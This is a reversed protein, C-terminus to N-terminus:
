HRGIGDSNFIERGGQSLWFHSRNGNSQFIYDNHFPTGYKQSIQQALANKDIKIWCDNRIKGKQLAWNYCDLCKNMDTLGGKVCAALFCCGWNRINQNPFHRQKPIGPVGTEGTPIIPQPIPIPVPIDLSRPGPVHPPVDIYRSGNSDMYCVFRKNGSGGTYRLWIRGENLILLDGSNIINGTDYHAVAETNTSPSTRVRLGNVLVKSM